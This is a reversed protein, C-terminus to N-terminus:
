SNAVERILAAAFSHGYESLHEAVERNAAEIQEPTAKALAEQYARVMKKESDEM